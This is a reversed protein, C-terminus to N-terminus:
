RAATLTGDYIQTLPVCLGLCRFEAAAQPGTYMHPKWNEARRHVVIRHEDQELLVYEEISDVRRYTMAKERRDIHETSPSLIEVVLKPNCVYNTGWEERNCAVVLDPYYVIEDTESRIRLKALSRSV